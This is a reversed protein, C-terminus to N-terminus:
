DEYREIMLNLQVVISLAFAFAHAKKFAYGADSVPKWIDADIVSRPKGVLHKKGPRILAIIVALDTVSKPQINQVISFYNHIHYLNEVVNRDMFLDWPPERSLLDVLHDENRVGKYITNNLLDVKFYGLDAATKADLSALGTFPNEPINQFYVSTNHKSGDSQLAPICRLSQAAADRDAFDIDIDTHNNV